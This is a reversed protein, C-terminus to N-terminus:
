HVKLYTTGKKKKEEMKPKQIDSTLFVHRSLDFDFLYVCWM